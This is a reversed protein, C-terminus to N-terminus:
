LNLEWVKNPDAVPLDMFDLKVWTYRTLMMQNAWIQANELNSFTGIFVEHDHHGKTFLQYVPKDM